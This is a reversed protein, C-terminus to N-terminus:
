TKIAESNMVAHPSSLLCLLHDLTRDLVCPFLFVAAVFRSNLFASRVLVYVYM